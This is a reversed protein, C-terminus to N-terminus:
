ERIKSKASRLNRRLFWEEDKLAPNRLEYEELNVNIM